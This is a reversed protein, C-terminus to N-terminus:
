KRSSWLSSYNTTLCKKSNKSEQLHYKKSCVIRSRNKIFTSRVTTKRFIVWTDKLIFKKIIKSCRLSKRRNRSVMRFVTAQVTLKHRCIISSTWLHHSYTQLKRAIRPFWSRLPARSKPTLFALCFKKRGRICTWLLLTGAVKELSSILRSQSVRQM